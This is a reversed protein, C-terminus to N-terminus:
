SGLLTRVFGAAVPNIKHASAPPHYTYEVCEGFGEFPNKRAYETPLKGKHKKWWDAWAAQEQSSLAYNYLHHGMEHCAVSLFAPRGGKNDKLALLEISGDYYGTFPSYNWQAKRWERVTVDPTKAVAGAPMESWIHLIQQELSIPAPNPVLILKGM